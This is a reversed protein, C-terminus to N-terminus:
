DMTGYKYFINECGMAELRKKIHEISSEWSCCGQWPSQAAMFYPVGDYTFKFGAGLVCSGVDGYERSRERWDLMIDKFPHAEASDFDWLYVPQIPKLYKTYEVEMDDSVPYCTLNWANGQEYYVGYENFIDSLWSPTGRYNIREYLPGEFSMSLIHNYAAYEFYAHPDMNTHVKLYLDNDRYCVDVAQNNFYVRVDEYGHAQCQKAIKWGMNSIRRKTLKKM